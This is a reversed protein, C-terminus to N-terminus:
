VFRIQEIALLPARAEGGAMSEEATALPDLAALPGFSVGSRAEIAHIPVQTATGLQPSTFGGFVFENESPLSQRQDMEYGTACLKGTEDHIFAIVKWFAVPIRVGHLVPDDAAFYPGTFVSIKMDDERAHQLAYDELALWIPANFAQMQPTANAVHMSDENGRKAEEPTGWSPDERRTMHGRSFKPPDGYCENMIQMSRPIRPDWKWGVRAAKRALNGDINCASFYCMRRRSNMVVSFHQYRLVTEPRGNSDFSLVDGCDVTPLPVSAAEGLFGELYGKRDRYDEAVAESDDSVDGSNDGLSGAAVSGARGLLLDRDVEVTVRVTLPISLSAGPQPARVASATASLGGTRRPAETRGAGLRGAKLDDRLQRVIDARVAYNTTLFRGSFHLGIVEGKNNDIVASGSNGGLTTCNHLLHTAEVSTVAGPALRKHDYRNGYISRMLDPEPIRSDFAPYGITSVNDSVEVRSALTLPTALKADGSLIEIEFFAVDPGPEPEIHLPRVLKFVLQESRGLERLFDVSATIRGAEGMKFVYGSGGRAAFERAVHRNTVVMAEDILWGTGVWAMDAGELDIRGIGPIFGDLASKATNLRERWIESDAQDNFELVTTNQKIDLVPRYRRMAISELEIQSDVDEVALGELAMELVPERDRAETALEPDGELVSRNYQRLRALKESSSHM